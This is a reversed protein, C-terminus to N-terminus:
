TNKTVDDSIKPLMMVTINQPLSFTKDHRANSMTITMHHTLLRQEEIGSIM